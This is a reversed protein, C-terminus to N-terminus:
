YQEERETHKKVEELTRWVPLLTKADFAPLMDTIHPSGPRSSNGYGLLARAQAGQPTFEVLQVYSDGGYSLMAGSGDPAPFSDIVRIPGFHDAPGSAPENSVPVSQQFSRDHTVLVTRHVGGWPVDLSGYRAKVESAAKVLDPVCSAADALGVPTELPNSATWGSRFKPHPSFFGITDDKAIAPDSAVIEWWREFLVAGKSAADANRDWAALTDAARAAIKDGSRRAAAILDPLVREALLMDTQEKGALLEDTTFRPRSLLFRMAHQPRLDMLRPSVYAPFHGPDNSAVQPFSSTWPPDNANAVFGGPPDIAHPLASWAFTHTWLLSPNSGDLIGDYAGWDGGDRVPQRGGFVYMVHGDRDAYIVNFFPMQLMANAASFDRLDRAEIMRWYQTVLSPADLGAVRLALAKDGRLAIIPGHVSAEIDIARSALSGDAQRVKVTESRHLLAVHKGGFLYTHDASLAIEYLNTNQITNNTHTWGIRDTYGIGLFPSGVTAVGSANLSPRAPDGIILNAQMFQYIGLGPIPQNNGWPLHPNGMLIANGTASKRPGIAWGNSGSPTLSRALGNAAVIGGSQWAGILRPLDDQEPMFTFNITYQEGATVDTAVLPLVRRIAPDITDGHRAAYENAGAVFAGIVVRQFSGGRDIWEKARAPIGEARVRVDSAVNADDKGAGFYEASRGRARAVNTLLTEAQNEMEAYGLGRVVSLVDRGYIHPVGTSDWRIDGHGPGDGRAPWPDLLVCALLLCFRRRWFRAM